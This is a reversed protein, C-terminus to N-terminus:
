KKTTKALACIRAIPTPDVRGPQNVNFWRDPVPPSSIPDKLNFSAFGKVEIERYSTEPCNIELKKLISRMGQGNARLRFVEGRIWATVHGNPLKEISTPDYLTFRTTDLTNEVFNGKTINRGVWDRLEAESAGEAPPQVSATAHHGTSMDESWASAPVTTAFLAAALPLWNM